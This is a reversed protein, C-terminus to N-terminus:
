LFNALILITRIKLFLVFLVSMYGKSPNFLIKYWLFRDIHLHVYMILVCLYIYLYHAERMAGITFFRGTICSVQIQDMTRSSGRSFPIAVWELMRAQLIGHVSSGPPIRDMLDCLTLFSQDVLVKVEFVCYPTKYVHMCACVCTHTYIYFLWM